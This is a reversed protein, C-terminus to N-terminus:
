NAGLVSMRCCPCHTHRELWPLLCVSHFRHACPLRDLKEGVKFRELCVVCEDQDSSKWISGMKGWNFRKSGSRKLGFGEMQLDGVVMSSSITNRGSEEVLSGGRSYREQRHTRLREDLREKAKRAVGGLKEDQDSQNIIMSTQQKIILCLLSYFFCLMKSASLNMYLLNIKVSLSTPVFRAEYFGRTRTSGLVSNISFSSDSWGTMGTSGRFRRRRATEVGPLTGAM